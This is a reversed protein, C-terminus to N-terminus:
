MSEGKRGRYPIQIYPKIIAHVLTGDLAGNLGKFFFTLWPFISTIYFLSFSTDVNFFFLLVKFYPEFHPNLCIEKPVIDLPLPKIMNKAFVMM